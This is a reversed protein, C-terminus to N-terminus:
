SEKMVSYIVREAIQVEADGLRAIHRYLERKAIRERQNPNELLAAMGKYYVRELKQETKIAATAAASAAAPDSTLAGIAQGIERLSEGLMAVMEAITEDPAMDMAEAENVLDRARNLLWDIGQSLAFLDEPEIPTVFSESVASLVERKAEDGRHEAERVAAAASRDGGAWAALADLGEYTEDIQRGLMGLLDPEDPLFWRHRTKQPKRSM